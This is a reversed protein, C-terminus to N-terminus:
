LRGRHPGRRRVRSSGGPRRRRVRRGTGAGPASARPRPGAVRGPLPGRCGLGRVQGHRGRTAVPRRRRGRRWLELGALNIHRRRGRRGRHDPASRVSATQAGSAVARGARRRSVALRRADRRDGPVRGARVELVPLRRRATRRSAGNRAGRRRREYDRRRGLPRAAARRRPSARLVAPPQLAVRAEQLPGDRVRRDVARPPRARRLPGDRVAAPEDAGTDAAAGDGDGRRGVMEGLEARRRPRARGRRGRRADPVVTRFVRLAWLLPRGLRRRGRRQRPLRRPAEATSERERLGVLVDDRGRAAPRLLARRSDAGRASWDSPGRRNVGRSGRRRQGRAVPAAARRTKRGDRRSFTRRRELRRGSVRARGFLM